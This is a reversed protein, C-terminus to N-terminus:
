AQRARWLAGELPDVPTQRASAAPLLIALRATMAARVRAIHTLVGGTFAVGIAASHYTPGEARPSATPGTEQPSAGPQYPDPRHGEVAASDNSMKRYVLAVLEALEEGARTLVKAALADGQEACRAVV